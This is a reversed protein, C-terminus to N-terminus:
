LIIFVFPNRLRIIWKYMYEQIVSVLWTSTCMFCIEFFDIQSVTLLVVSLYLLQFNQIIIFDVKVLGEYEHKSNFAVGCWIHKMFPKRVNGMLVWSPKILAFKNLTFCFQWPCFKNYWRTSWMESVIYNSRNM